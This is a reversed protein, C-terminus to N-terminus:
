GNVNGGGAGTEALRLELVALEAQVVARQLQLAKSLARGVLPRGYSDRNRRPHAVVRVAQHQLAVTVEEAPHVDGRHFLVNLREVAQSEDLGHRGAISLLIDVVTAPFLTLLHHAIGDDIVAVVWGDDEVLTAVVLNRFLVHGLHLDDAVLVVRM